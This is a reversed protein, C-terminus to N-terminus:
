THKQQKYTNPKLSSGKTNSLQNGREWCDNTAQLKKDLTPVGHFKRKRTREHQWQKIRTQAATKLSFQTLILSVEKSEKKPSKVGLIEPKTQNSWPVIPVNSTKTNELAAKHRLPLLTRSFLIDRRKSNEGRRVPASM